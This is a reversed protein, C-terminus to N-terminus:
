GGIHPDRIAYGNLEIAAQIVKELVALAILFRPTDAESLTARAAVLLRYPGLNCVRCQGLTFTPRVRVCFCLKVVKKGFRFEM